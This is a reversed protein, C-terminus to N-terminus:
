SPCNQVCINPSPSPFRLAAFQNISECGIYYYGEPTFQKAAIRALEARAEEPWDGTDIRATDADHHPGPLACLILNYKAAIADIKQYLMNM